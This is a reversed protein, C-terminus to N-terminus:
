SRKPVFLLVVGAVITAIGAWPPIIVTKKEKISLDFSGIKAEHNTKTYTFQGYALGALGAVILVVAIVKVASLVV